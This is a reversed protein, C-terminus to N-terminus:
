YCTLGLDLWILFWVSNSRTRRNRLLYISVHCLFGWGLSKVSLFSKAFTVRTSCPGSCPSPCRDDNRFPAPGANRLPSRVRGPRAPPLGVAASTLRLGARRRPSPTSWVPGQAGLPFGAFTSVGPFSWAVTTITALSRGRKFIHLSSFMFTEWGCPKFVVNLSQYKHVGLYRCYLTGQSDFPLTVFPLFDHVKISIFIM